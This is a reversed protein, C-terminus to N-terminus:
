GASLKLPMAPPPRVLGLKALRETLGLADTPAYDKEETDFYIFADRKSALRPKESSVCDADAPERGAVWSAVRETWWDLKASPYGKKYQSEQGHMRAYIFDSTLDEMYPSKLGSHAMVLAVNFERMMEVFGPDQFSFNRFEFAHRIRYNGHAELYARGEVKASHKKAIKLAGATDHPLMQMFKEFRDDKLMVNPPFQWLIVGLKARLALLGSALFNALPEEVNKLRRIHTIYQPAKVAFVFDEPTEDHWKQFSAPKQLSYFTGNIEVSSLARSAYELERRQVLGKPYFGGRWGEHQWGSVGIRIEGAM